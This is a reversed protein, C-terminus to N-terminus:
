LLYYAIKGVMDTRFATEGLPFFMEEVIIKYFTFTLVRMKLAQQNPYTNLLALTKIDRFQTINEHVINHNARGLVHYPDLFKTIIDQVIVKTSKDTLKLINNFIAYQHKM